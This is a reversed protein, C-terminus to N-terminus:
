RVEGSKIYKPHNRLAEEAIERDDFHNRIGNIEQYTEHGKGAILVIDKKGAKSIAHRIAEERSVMSTVNSMDTFGSLIQDIIDQPNETRPNDSTVIIKDGYKQAIQAMQPRKSQDRDGGCGFVISLKEDKKLFEKITSSVNDLADPTHAYDVFILPIRKTDAGDSSVREMRGPAGKCDVLAKAVETGDLGLATCILLAETVNYANFKGALPSFIRSDDVLIHNGDAASSILSANIIGQGKFSFSLVNAPTTNVMWMGRSDDANTIAWSKDTLSNFLKRKAAAYDNISEHYDLHDHSLNTFAAVDFGIGKVRKQHLAHSSVEMIVYESGADAMQKMDEALEIPDATTLKSPSSDTLIRIEVTGLLSAKKNLKTLIEWVLTAVTTKGNTGTIGIVSMNAAPNGAFFQALPGLLKRTNKVIIKCIENQHFDNEAIIVAAGREVAEQIFNHGDSKTGKVAIFVDGKEIDRSDQRLKGVREPHQGSVSIPEIFELVNSLKMM